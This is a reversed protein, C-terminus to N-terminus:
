TIFSFNYFILLFDLSTIISIGGVGLWSTISHHTRYLKLLSKLFSGVTESSTIFVNISSIHFMSSRFGFQFVSMIGKNFGYIFFCLFISILKASVGSSAICIDTFIYFIHGSKCTQMSKSMILYVM